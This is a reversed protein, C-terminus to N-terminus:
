QRTAALPDGSPPTRNAASSFRGNRIFGLVEPWVEAFHVYLEDHSFRVYMCDDHRQALADCEFHFPGYSRAVDKHDIIFSTPSTEVVLGIKVGATAIAPYPTHALDFVPSGYRVWTLFHLKEDAIRPAREQLPSRDYIVTAIRQNGSSAILPNLSWGGAIFAFVHLREYRTLRERMYQQLNKRSEDLGSRSIYDPIHLDMGQAAIAPQLARLAREAAGDYGFGRLIVLAEDHSQAPQLPAAALGAICASAIVVCFPLARRAASM